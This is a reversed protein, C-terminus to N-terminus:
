NRAADVDGPSVWSTMATGKLLGQFVSLRHLNTTGEMIEFARVDRYTKELRPHEILSAPGLLRAALMTIEEAVRAAELKV